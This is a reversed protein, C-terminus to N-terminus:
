VQQGLKYQSSPISNQDSRKNLAWITNKCNQDMTESQTEVLANTTGLSKELNLTPNYGLLIQNPSLGTTTNIWNNHVTMVTVWRSWLADGSREKRRRCEIQKQRM